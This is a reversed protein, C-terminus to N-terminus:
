SSAARTRSPGCGRRTWSACRRALRRVAADFVGFGKGREVACTGRQDEQAAAVHARAVRARVGAVLQAASPLPRLRPVLRRHGAQPYGRHHRDGIAVCCSCGGWLCSLAFFFRAEAGEQHLQRVHCVRLRCHSRRMWLLPQDLHAHPVRSCVAVSKLFGVCMTAATTAFPQMSPVPQMSM